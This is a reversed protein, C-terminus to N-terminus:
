AAFPEAFMGRQMALQDAASKYLCAMCAHCQQDSFKLLRSPYRPDTRHIEGALRIAGDRIQKLAVLHTTSGTDGYYSDVDYVRELILREAQHFTAPKVRLYNVLDDVSGVPRDDEM